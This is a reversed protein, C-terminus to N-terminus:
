KTENPGKKRFWFQVILANWGILAGLLVSTGSGELVGAPTPEARADRVVLVTFAAWGITAALVVFTYVWKMRESPRM